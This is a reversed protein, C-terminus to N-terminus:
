NFTVTHSHGNDTSSEKSVRTNAAISSVEAATLEVTHPHTAGGRIDLSIAQAATLKAAEIVATHGHNSGVVGTKDGVPPPTPTPTPTPTSPSDSSGGCANSSITIGVGSLMALASAVTLERRTVNREASM